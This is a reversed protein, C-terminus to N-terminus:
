RVREESGETVLEVPLTPRAGPEPQPVGLADALTRNLVVTTIPKQLVVPEEVRSRAIAAAQDPNKSLRDRMVRQFEGLVELQQVATLMVVPVPFGVLERIRFQLPDDLGFAAGVNALPGLPLFLTKQFDLVQAEIEVEPRGITRTAQYRAAAARVGADAADLADSQEVYRQQAAAYSLSSPDQALAGGALAFSGACLGFALLRAMGANRLRSAM